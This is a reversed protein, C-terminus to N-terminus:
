HSSTRFVPHSLLAGTNLVIVKDPSLGKFFNRASDTSGAESVALENEAISQVKEVPGVMLGTPQDGNRIILICTDTEGSAAPLSLLRRLDIVARLEGRLNIVGALEGPARPVPTCKMAPLVEALDAVPLGFREAGLSFVLVRVTRVPTAINTQRTALRAARERYIRDIREPSAVLASQLAADSEELQRRAVDWDIRLPKNSM